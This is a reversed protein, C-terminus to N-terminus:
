ASPPPSPSVWPVRKSANLKFAHPPEIWPVRGCNRATCNDPQLCPMRVPHAMGLRVCCCEVNLGQMSNTGLKLSVTSVNINMAVLLPYVEAGAAHNSGKTLALDSVWNSIAPVPTSLSKALLSLVRPKRRQSIPRFERAQAFELRTAQSGSCNNKEVLDNMKLDFFRWLLYERHCHDDNGIRTRTQVTLLSEANQSRENANEFGTDNIGDFLPGLM